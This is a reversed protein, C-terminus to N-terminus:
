WFPYHCQAWSDTASEWFSATRIITLIFDMDWNNDLFDVAVFDQAIMEQNYYSVAFM